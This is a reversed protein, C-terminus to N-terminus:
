HLFQLLADVVPMVVIFLLTSTTVINTAFSVDGKAEHALIPLVALAPVASQVILTKSEPLPLPLVSKGAYILIVMILPALVFKGLLAVLADCDFRISKLGAHYLTIGIYLLSLPTVTAGLYQLPAHIFTPVAIDALLFILAVLFGLLPAPLLKKWNFPPKAAHNDTQSADGAIFYVGIAWTSVTNLVYYVLFYPMATEGFLATNLPLGIFITNANVIANIFTGRRGARIHCLKVLLIAVLYGLIVSLAGYILGDTLAMLKDRNLYELVSVFISAPLAINMILRSLNAAFTDAFWNKQQLIYGIAILLVISLVSETATLFIM